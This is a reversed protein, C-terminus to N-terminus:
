PSADGLHSWVCCVDVLLMARLLLNLAGTLCRGLGGLLVRPCNQLSNLDQMIYTHAHTLSIQTIFM